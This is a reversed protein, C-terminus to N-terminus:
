QNSFSMNTILYEGNKNEKVANSFALLLSTNSMADILSFAECFFTAESNEEKHLNSFDTVRLSQEIIGSNKRSNDM